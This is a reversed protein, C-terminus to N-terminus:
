RVQVQNDKDDDIQIVRLCSLFTGLALYLDVAALKGAFRNENALIEHM